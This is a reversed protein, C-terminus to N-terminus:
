RVLRLVFPLRVPQGIGAALATVLVAVPWALALPIWLLAALGLTFVTAVVLLVNLVIFSIQVNLAEVAQERVYASRSGAGILVLLPGFVSLLLGLGHAVAAWGREAGTRPVATWAPRVAVPRPPAVPASPLPPQRRGSWPAPPYLGDLCAGLDARTTATLARGLRDDLEARALRGEAYAASLREAVADRDRDSVRWSAPPPSATPQSM